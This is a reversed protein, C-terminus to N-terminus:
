LCQDADLDAAFFGGFGAGRQVGNLAAQRGDAAQMFRQVQSFGTGRHIDCGEQLLDGMGGTFLQGVPHLHVYLNILRM